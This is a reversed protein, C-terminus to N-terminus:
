VYNIKEGSNDKKNKFNKLHDLHEGILTLWAIFDTFLLYCKEIKFAKLLIDIMFIGICLFILAVILWIYM